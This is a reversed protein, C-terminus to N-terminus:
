ALAREFVRLREDLAAFGVDDYLALAAHNDVATNVLVRRVRWFALWRLSDLVLARGIGTRQAEPAV